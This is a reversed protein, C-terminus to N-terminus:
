RIVQILNCDTDDFIILLQIIHMRKNQRAQIIRMVIHIDFIVIFLMIIFLRVLIFVFVLM